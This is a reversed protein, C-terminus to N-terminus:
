VRFCVSTCGNLNQLSDDFARVARCLSLFDWQGMDGTVGIQVEGDEMRWGRLEKCWTELEGLLTRRVHFM